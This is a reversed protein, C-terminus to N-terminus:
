KITFELNTFTVRVYNAVLTFDHHRHHNSKSMFIPLIYYKSSIMLILM